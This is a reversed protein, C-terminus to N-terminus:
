IKDKITQRARFLTVKVDAESVELIEAIEKYSKGEVDRLQFVTRQKEPLNNILNEVRQLKEQQEIAEDIAIVNDARDHSSEDLSINKRESKQLLDLSLNRCITMAMAEMNNVEADSYKTWLKILTEQVIDQADDRQLTIRLALRFLKDKFALINANFSIEKM